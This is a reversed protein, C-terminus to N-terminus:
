RSYYPFLETESSHVFFKIEGANFEDFIVINELRISMSQIVARTWTFFMNEFFM